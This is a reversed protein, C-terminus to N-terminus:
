AREDREERLSAAAHQVVERLRDTRLPKSLVEFAGLAMAEAAVEPSPYGTILIVKSARSKARVRKLLTMGDIGKMRIDSVVIDFGAELFRALALASDEFTEVEFGLKELVPKLRRGVIPEDDVILARLPGSM